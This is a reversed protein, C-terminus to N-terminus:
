SDLYSRLENAAETSDLYLYRSTTELDAHSLAKSILAVSAGKRLLNTAFGRRLAHPNLNPIDFDKSYTGLRRRIANSKDSKQVSTGEMTIFILNNDVNKSNRIINNQYILLSLMELMDDSLPLMSLKRNKMISGDLILCKQEFNIHKTELQSLTNIRIGTQYILLVACADRFEFYNSLDLIRLLRAVDEPTTAEKVKEDVKIKIVRWFKNPIWGNEFFRNLISALAKFRIRKTSNQVNGMSELWQYIKDVTIDSIYVIKCKNIFDNFQKNYDNITRPRNGNLEMQKLVRKLSMRIEIKSNEKTTQFHIFNDFNSPELPASKTVKFISEGRNKKAM